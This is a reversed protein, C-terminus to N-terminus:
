RTSRRLRAAVASGGVLMLVGYVGPVTGAAVGFAQTALAAAVAFDRMAIAFGGPVVVIGKFVRTWAEALAAAIVLFLASALAASGLDHGNRAGSLAAYVLVAVVLACLGEREGDKRELSPEVRGASRIAVGAILPVIVVLAFRGVLAAGDAHAGHGGLVGILVPGLLASVILSGTVAGIAIATDAGALAVLGVGAVESSALGVGLLGHQISPEFPRGLAWSAAALVLLPVVSLFLVARWHDTLRRLDDSSIGLATLLVLVALLEDSHNAMARSPVALALAAAVIAIPTLAEPASRLAQGPTPM